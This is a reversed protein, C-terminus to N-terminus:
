KSINVGPRVCDGTIEGYTGPGLAMRMIMLPEYGSSLGNWALMGRPSITDGGPLTRTCIKTVVEYLSTAQVLAGQKM